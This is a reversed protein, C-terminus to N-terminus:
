PWFENIYEIFSFNVILCGKTYRSLFWQLRLSIDKVKSQGFFGVNLLYLIEMVNTM